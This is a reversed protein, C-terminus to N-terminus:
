VVAHGIMFVFKPATSFNARAWRLFNRVSNPHKKIGFAFQDVLEDM